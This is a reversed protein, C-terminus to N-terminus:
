VTCGENNAAQFVCVIYGKTAFDSNASKLNEFEFKLPRLTGTTVNNQSLLNGYTALFETQAKNIFQVYEDLSFPIM